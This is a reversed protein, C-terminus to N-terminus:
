FESSKITAAYRYRGSMTNEMLRAAESVTTYPSVQAVSTTMIDRVKM